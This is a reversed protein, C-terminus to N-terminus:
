LLTLYLLSIIAYDCSFICGYASLLGTIRGNEFEVDSISM